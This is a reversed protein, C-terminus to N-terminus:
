PHCLLDFWLGPCRQIMIADWAPAQLHTSCAYNHQDKGPVSRCSDTEQASFPVNTKLLWQPIKKWENTSTNKSEWYVKVIQLTKYCSIAYSLKCSSDSGKQKSWCTLTVTLAGRKHSFLYRTATEQEKNLGSPIQENKLQLERWQNRELGFPGPWVTAGQTPASGYTRITMIVGAQMKELNRSYSIRTYHELQPCITIKYVPVFVEGEKGKRIIRSIWKATNVKLSGQTSFHLSTKTCHSGSIIAKSWQSTTQFM